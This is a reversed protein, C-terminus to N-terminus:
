KILSLPAGGVTPVFSSNTWLTPMRTNLHKFESHLLCSSLDKNERALWHIGYEPDVEVLWHVHDLMRKLDILEANRKLCVDTIITKLRKEVEGVLV